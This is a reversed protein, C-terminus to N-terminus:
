LDETCGDCRGNQFLFIGLTCSKLEFNFFSVWSGKKCFLKSSGATLRVENRHSKKNMEIVKHRGITKKNWGDWIKKSALVVFIFIFVFFSTPM